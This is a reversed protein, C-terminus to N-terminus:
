FPNTTIFVPSGLYECLLQTWTGKIMVTTGNIDEYKKGTTGTTGDMYLHLPNIAEESNIVKEGAILVKGSNMIIVVGVGCCGGAKDILDNWQTQIMSLANATFTIEHDYMASVGKKSSQKVSYNAEDKQFVVKYFIHLNPFNARYQHYVSYYGRQTLGGAVDFTFDYPDFFLLQAIGGSVNSCTANKNSTLTVCISV